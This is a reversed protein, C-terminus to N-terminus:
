EDAKLDSRSLDQFSVSLQYTCFRVDQITSPSSRRHRPSYQLKGSSILRQDENVHEGDIQGRMTINLRSLRVSSLRIM